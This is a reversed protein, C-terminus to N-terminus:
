QRAEPSAVMEWQSWSGRGDPRRTSVKVADRVTALGCERVIKSLGSRSTFRIPLGRKPGDDYLITFGDASAEVVRHAHRIDTGTANVRVFLLGRPELMAAARRFYRRTRRRDGHQFSQIAVVYGFRGGDYQLFDKCVLRGALRPEKLAIQELGISSMDLGVMDLGANSMAIYNRGNGCGVYLGRSDRLDSRQIEATVQRAFELPSDDAYRGSAYEDDWARGISGSEPTRRYANM